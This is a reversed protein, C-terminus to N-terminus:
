TKGQVFSENAVKRRSTSACGTGEGLDLRWQVQQHRFAIGSLARSRRIREPMRGFGGADIAVGETQNVFGDGFLIPSKFDRKVSRM